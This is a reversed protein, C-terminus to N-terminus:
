RYLDEVENYWKRSDGVRARLRWSLNKPASEVAERLKVIKAAVDTRDADVLPGYGLLLGSVKDLNGTVTRWLGWDKACLQSIYGSDINEGEGPGVQHERLLVITDIVDKENLKYIQMKGLFLDALPVTPYDMELRGEFSITHSMQLKGLFVDCHIGDSKRRFILRGGGFATVTADEEYGLGAILQAVKSSYRDYSALDIDGLKRGLEEFLYGYKPCHQVIGAAGFIRLPVKKETGSEVIRLAESVLIPSEAGAGDPM